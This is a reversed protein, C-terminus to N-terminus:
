WALRAFESCFNELVAARVEQDLVKEGTPFECVEREGDPGADLDVTYLLGNHDTTIAKKFPRCILGKEAHRDEANADPFFREQEERLKGALHEGSGREQAKEEALRFAQEWDGAELADGIVKFDVETWGPYAEEALGELVNNTDYGWSIVDRMVGMTSNIETALSDTPKNM